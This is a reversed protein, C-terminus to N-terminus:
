RTHQVSQIGASPEDGDQAAQKCYSLLMVVACLLLIVFVYRFQLSGDKNTM